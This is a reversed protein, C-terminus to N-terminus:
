GHKRKRKKGELSKLMNYQSETVDAGKYKYMVKPKEFPNPWVRDLQDKKAGMASAIILTSHRVISQEYLLGDNWGKRLLWFDDFEM